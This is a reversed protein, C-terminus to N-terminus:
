EVVVEGPAHLPSEETYIFRANKQPTTISLMNGSYDYEYTENYVIAEPETEAANTLRDRADYVMAKVKQHIVDTISLVNGVDDYTYTKDQVTPTQMNRLRLTAPDYDLTTTLDNAYERETVSGFPSYRTSEIISPIAYLSGSNGYQYELVTDGYQETVVRDAADYEYQVLLPQGNDFTVQKQTQRLRDDYSYSTEAEPTVVSSLTGIKGEDYYYKIISDGAREEKLRGLADYTFASETGEADTQRILNGISDYQYRWTGMDPDVISIRNGLSDYTYSIVNGNHDTISILKDDADYSYTTLYSDTIEKFHEYIRVVNGYADKVYSTQYGNEDVFAMSERLYTITRKTGDPNTKEQVRGLPTYSFETMYQLDSSTPEHYSDSEDIFVPNSQGVIQGASDYFFNTVAEEDNDDAEKKLQILNEFGDLYSITTIVGPLGSVEREEITVSSPATGPMSYTTRKTPLLETDYPLIDKEQRGFSDYTYRTMIGNPDTVSLLNGTGANYEYGTIQGLANEMEAIFTNSGDYRYQTIHNNTDTRSALNGYDDYEMTETIYSGSLAVSGYSITSPTGNWYQIMTVDGKLPASSYVQNDYAYRTEQLIKNTSDTRVQRKITDVIWAGPNYTYELYDYREDGPRSLVGEQGIIITNGYQDYAYQIRTTLPEGSSGDYLKDTTSFLEVVSYEGHPIVNFFHEVTRQLSEDSGYVQSKYEMGKRVKDQHFYHHIKNNEPTTEEVFAFGRFEMGDPEFKGDRYTYAYDAVIHHDGIMGNDYTVDTVVWIPFGLDNVADGGRHDFRTSPAYKFQITGGLPNKVSQLLYAPGANNTYTKRNSDQVKIIDPHGDGNIDAISSSFDSLVINSPVAWASDEVWGNGTNVFAKRTVADSQLLDQLGDGNVDIIAVGKDKGSSLFIAGTPVNWVSAQLQWDKGNNFWPKITSDKAKLLDINGDANIDAFRVGLDEGTSSTVFVGSPPVVWSTTETFTNSNQVWTKQVVDSARVIDTKGDSNVDVLQVGTNQYAYRTYSCSQPASYEITPYATVTYTGGDYDNDLMLESSCEPENDDLADWLNSNYDKYVGMVAFAATAEGSCGYGCSTGMWSQCADYTPACYISRTGAEDCLLYNFGDWDGADSGSSDPYGDNDYSSLYRYEWKSNDVDDIFGYDDGGPVTSLWSSSSAAGMFGVGAYADVDGGDCDEDFDGYDFDDYTMLDYCESDDSGDTLSGGTYSFMYCYNNQPTFLNSGDVEEYDNDLWSLTTDQFVVSGYSSCTILKCSRTCSTSTCSLGYDTYGFPCAAPDCGTAVTKKEVFSVGSPPSITNSRWGDNTHELFQNSSAEGSVVQWMDVGLNGDKDLFRLGLDSGAADTAGASITPTLAVASGWGNRNNKWYSMSSTDSLKIIDTFGDKDKDVFRVANDKDVRSALGTPVAWTSNEQWGKSLPYYSFETPPLVSGDSGIETISKLFKKYDVTDYDFQYERVPSEKNSITISELLHTSIINTGYMFGQFAYHANEEYNLQILNDGYIISNLYMARDSSPNKLYTYQITNGHTDTADELYWMSVFTGQTSRLLTSDSYGFRYMTGDKEQVIWGTGNPWIRLNTELETHYKGDAPDYIMKHRASGLSLYFEDDSTSSITGNPERTIMDLGLAWGVGLVGSATKRNSNYQLAVEPAHDNVGPPVDISVSYSAAGSFLDTHEGLSFGSSSLFSSQSKPSLSTIVSPSSSALSYVTKDTAKEVPVDQVQDNQNLDGLVFPTTPEEPDSGEDAVALASMNLLLIM